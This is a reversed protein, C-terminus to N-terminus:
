VDKKSWYKENMMKVWEKYEQSEQIGKNVIDAAKKRGHKKILQRWERETIPMTKKEQHQKKQQSTM